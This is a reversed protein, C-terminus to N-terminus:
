RKIVKVVPVISESTSPNTSAAPLYTLPKPVSVSKIRKPQQEEGDVIRKLVHRIKSERRQLIFDHIELAKAECQEVSMKHSYFQTFYALLAQKLMNQNVGGKSELSDLRVRSNGMRLDKNGLGQSHFTSMIFSEYKGREARLAKVQKEIIKLQDDYKIYQFVAEKLSSTM